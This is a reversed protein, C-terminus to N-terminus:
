PANPTNCQNPSSICNATHRASQKVANFILVGAVIAIIVLIGILVMNGVQGSEGDAVLVALRDRLVDGARWALRRARVQTELFMM